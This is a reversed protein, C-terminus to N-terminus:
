ALLHPFRCVLPVRNDAPEDRPDCHYGYLEVEDVRHNLDQYYSHVGDTVHFSTEHFVRTKKQPRTKLYDFILNPDGLDGSYALIEEDSEFCYAWTPMGEVHKGFTDLATLGPIIEVPFFELYKLPDTLSFHVYDEIMQQFSQSPVLIRAKRAPDLFYKHHLIVSSLSGVHDDHFHTLLIYDIQDALGTERLRRYVSNGCDILINKGQFQIWASSNSFEYDFAGGTGLFKINM